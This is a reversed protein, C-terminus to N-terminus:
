GGAATPTPRDPIPPRDPWCGKNLWTEPHKTYQQNPDKVAQFRAYYEAGAIM